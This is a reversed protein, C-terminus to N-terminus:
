KDKHFTTLIFGIVSGDVTSLAVNSTSDNIYLKLYRDFKSSDDWLQDNMEPWTQRGLSRIGTYHDNNKIDLRKIKYLKEKEQIDGIQKNLWQIAYYGGIPVTVILIIIGATIWFDM